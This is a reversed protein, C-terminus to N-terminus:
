LKVVTQLYQKGNGSLRIFYKGSALSNPMQILQAASGGAYQLTRTELVRGAVDMVQLSYTGAPMADMQLTLQNAKDIPNPYVTFSPVVGGLKVKVVWSVLQRGEKDVARIKYFHNGSGPQVHLWQYGAPSTNKAEIRWAKGFDIGNRSYLVEYYSMNTETAAEWSVQVDQQQQVARLTLLNVPLLTGSRQIILFRGATVSGPDVNVTFDYRTLGENSLATTSSLHKDLLYIEAGQAALNKANFSLTFAGSTLGPIDLFLTDWASSVPPRGEISLMEGSSIFSVGLDRNFSGMKAVDYADHIDMQNGQAFVALAGDLLKLSGNTNRAHLDTFLLGPQASGGPVEFPTIPTTGSTKHSEMTTLTTASSSITQLLVGQGSQIYQVGPSAGGPVATWTGAIEKVTQWGNLGANWIWMEPAFKGTNNAELQDFDIASAYPNGYTFFRATNTSPVPQSIAGTKLTGTPVLTTSGNGTTVTRDGRVYLMYAPDTANLLTGITSRSAVTSPWRGNANKAGQYRKLSTEGGKGTTANWLAPWWDYGANNANTAPPPFAHGTIITGRGATQAPISTGGSEDNVRTAAGGAWADRITATASSVPISLLRWARGVTPPIFREVTVQTANALTGTIVGISGTGDATSKVVVPRNGFDASGSITLTKNPAIALTGTGNLTLTGAVTFDVNLQPTGLPILIDDGTTPIVLQLWNGAVNWLDNVAGTWTIACGEDISGDCDDDVGNCVETAGPNINPNNDNCDGARNAWGTGPNNCFLQGEGTGYTDGDADTYWTTTNLGNLTYSNDIFLTPNYKLRIRITYTSGGPTGSTGFGSTINFPDATIDAFTPTGSFSNGSVIAYELGNTNGNLDGTLDISVSGQAPNACVPQTPTVTASLTATGLCEIILQGGGNNNGATNNQNSGLNLSYGGEAGSIGGLVPVGGGAGGTYGGGGGGGVDSVNGGGGGGYGGGGNGGVMNLAVRGTGGAGNFGAGGGGPANGLGNTFGSGGISLTGGGGAGEHGSGGAGNGLLIQGGQPALSNAANGGGGGAIILDVGDKLRAGTGGGGGGTRGDGGPAGATIEFRQFTTVIFEGNTTAGPAGNNGGKAGKATIRVKYPGGAPVTWSGAAGIQSHTAATVYLVDDVVNNCNNDLGDCVETAVPNIAASNDNCDGTTATLETSLKYGVPRLCQTVTGAGTAGYGDGDSDNYWVQGPKEIASNDNCDTNNSVYGAPATCSQTTSSADGFGDGDADRYWTNNALTSVWNSTTGSLAFNNLRGNYYGPQAMNQVGPLIGTNDGNAMGNDFTYQAVLGTQPLTISCLGSQLQEQTRAVSWIRVDDLTGTMLQLNGYLAGLFAGGNVVPLPNDSSNRQGVLQGDLYSKFGNVTNRKWTMAVHHWSGDTSAAGVPVGSGTTWGGDNSLIHEGYHGSVIFNNGDPQLRVASQLVSGKFWYEITIEDGGNVIPTGTGCSNILAVHDDVGDFHLANNTTTPSVPVFPLPATQFEYAGMDVMSGFIRANGVLDTATLGTNDGANIGPSCSQLALGDDATGYRIDPGAPTNINAFIPDLSSNGTGTWGGQINSYSIVPTADNFLSQNNWLVCNKLSVVPNTGTIFMIGSSRYVSAQNRVGSENNVMTCNTLSVNSSRNYLAGGYQGGRQGYFLCNKFEVLSSEFYLGGADRFTGNNTFTCNTFSATEEFCFVAGGVTAFNNDFHCNTAVPSSRSNFIAGGSGFCYNGNFTVNNMVPSAGTFNFMGGGDRQSFNRDFLVNTLTPSCNLTNMLGGGGSEAVNGFFILNRLTPSADVNYMGGGSINSGISSILTRGGRITFGDLVASATLPDGASFVNAFVQYSNEGNNAINTASNVVDDGNLDGSLITVNATFNRQGLLTETGNFGGYIAVGNKMRFSISRDTGTTPKYTGGAVWVEDGSRAGNIILQLSGSANAWSTGNGTAGPRVYWITAYASAAIVNFLVLLVAAALFSRKSATKQHIIAM